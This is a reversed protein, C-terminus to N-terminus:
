QRSKCSWCCATSSSVQLLQLNHQQLALSGGTQMNLLFLARARAAQLQLRDPMSAIVSLVQEVNQSTLTTRDLQKKNEDVPRSIAAEAGDNQTMSVVNQMYAHETDNLKPRGQMCRLKKFQAFTKRVDEGPNKSGAELHRAREAQLFEEGREVTTEKRDYNNRECFGTWSERFVDFTRKTNPKWRGYQERVISAHVKQASTNPFSAFRDADAEKYRNEFALLDSEHQQSAEQHEMETLSYFRRSCRRTSSISSTKGV